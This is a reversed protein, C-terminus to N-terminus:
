GPQPPLCVINQFPSRQTSSRGRLPCPAGATGPGRRRGGTQSTASGITTKTGARSTESQGTFAAPGLSVTPPLAKGPAETVTTPWPNLAVVQIWNCHSPDAAPIGVANVALWPVNRVDSSIGVFAAGPGCTTPAPANEQDPRPAIDATVVAARADAVTITSSGAAAAVGMIVAAGVGVGTTVAGVGVGTTVAGVGVGTTVAKVGAGVAAADTRGLRVGGGVEVGVDVGVAGTRRLGM